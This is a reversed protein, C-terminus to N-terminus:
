YLKNYDPVFSRKKDPNKTHEMVQLMYALADARDDHKGFPFVLLEDELANDMGNSRHKILNSEYFPILGKIRLEKKTKGVLPIVNFRKGRKDMEQKLFFELSKQYGNTEIGVAILKLKYKDKLYFLNDIVETPNFRGTFDELKYIINSGSEKGVVQISTNDDSVSEEWGALDVTAYVELDKNIIDTEEYYTFWEKKFVQNEEDVPNQQYLCNSSIYGWAIYNNTETELAYVNDRKIFDIGIVKDRESIPMHSRRYMRKIIQEKKGIDVYKLLKKYLLSTDKTTIHMMDERNEIKLSREEIKKTYKINLADLCKVIRKCVSLNKGFSQSIFCSGSGIHGEGDIIGSLYNLENLQKDEVFIDDGNGYYMLRRGIKAIDYEKRGRYGETSESGETRGTYWRHDLTCEVRRGSEMIIKYIDDVKNMTHLVKTKVLKARHEKTGKKFGVVFDGEKIESIAKYTWDGMLIPTEAPTCNFDYIGIQKKIKLVEELSYRDKWLVEGEKRSYERGKIIYKEDKEAIAPLSLVTWQNDDDMEQIRGALDDQHWRTQIVIVVGNPSLRTFATSTFWEWTKKRMTESNAEERNKIPDDILLCNHVLIDNAFFNNNDEVQIDYVDLEKEFSTISLISDEKVQSSNYPMEQLCSSSERNYQEKSQLRQSSNSPEEKRWMCCMKFWGAKQNQIENESVRESLCVNWKWTQLKSKIKGNTGFFSLQKQLGNFLIKNFSKITQMDEWLIFMPHRKIKKIITQVRKFLIKKGKKRNIKWLNFMECQKQFFSTKRLMGKWLLFRKARNKGKKYIRGLRKCVREQLSLMVINGNKSLPLIWLREKERINKAEIYGKGVVFIKHDDTSIIVRGSNTTIKIFRKSVRKLTAKVKKFELINKDHNYSLVRTGKNCNEIKEKRRDTTIITGAPFCNAGRGTLAGGVGMSIYSGNQKTIWKNKAQSDDRLELEPFIAKYARDRVIDRTKQGFDSALDGSYSSTIIEKDPNRGLYWSPFNISALQSKGSRPQIEIILRKIEGREAKELYDAILLHHWNPIYNPDTLISFNILDIRGLQMIEKEDIM